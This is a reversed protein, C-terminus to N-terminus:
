IMFVAGEELDSKGAVADEELKELDSEYDVHQAPTFVLSVPSPIDKLIPRTTLKLIEVLKIRSLQAKTIFRQERQM